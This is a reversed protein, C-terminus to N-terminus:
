IEDFVVASFSLKGLTVAYLRFRLILKKGQRELSVRSLPREDHM